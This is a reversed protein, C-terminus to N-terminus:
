LSPNLHQEIATLIANEVSGNSNVVVWSKMVNDEFAEYHCNVSVQTSGPELEVVIVKMNMRLGAWTALFMKPPYVYRAANMNNYGAPMSVWDTVILGSDKEVIKPPYVTAVEAVLM